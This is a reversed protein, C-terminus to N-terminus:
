LLSATISKKDYSFTKSIVTRIITYIRTSFKKVILFKNDVRIVLRLLITRFFCIDQSSALTYDNQLTFHRVKQDRRSHPNHLSM